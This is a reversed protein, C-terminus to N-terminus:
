QIYICIYMYVTSCGYDLYELIRIYYKGTVSVEKQKLYTCIKNAM